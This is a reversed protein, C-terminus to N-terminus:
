HMNTLKVKKFIENKKCNISCFPFFMSYSNTKKLCIDSLIAKRLLASYDIHAVIPSFKYM